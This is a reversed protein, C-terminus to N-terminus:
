EHNNPKNKIYECAKIIGANYAEPETEFMKIRTRDFDSNSGTLIDINFYYGYWRIEIDISNNKRLWKVAQTFLPVTFMGNPLTSNKLSEPNKTIRLHKPTPSYHAFCGDNFCVNKLAQSAEWNCFNEQEFKIM